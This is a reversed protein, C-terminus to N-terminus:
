KKVTTIKTDNMLFEYSSLKELLVVTKWDEGNLTSFNAALGIYRAEPHARQGSFDLTLEKEPSVQIEEEKVLDNGLADAAGGIMGPGAKRFRSDDRLQYIWVTVPSAVGANPNLEKGGKIRLVKSCGVSSLVLVGLLAITKKM